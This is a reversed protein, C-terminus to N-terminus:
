GFAIFHRVSPKKILNPWQPLVFKLMKQGRARPDNKLVMTQGRARGLTLFFKVSPIKLVRMFGRIPTRVCLQRPGVLVLTKKIYKFCLSFHTIIELFFIEQFILFYFYYYRRSAMTLSLLKQSNVLNLINAWNRLISLFINQCSCNLNFKQLWNVSVM